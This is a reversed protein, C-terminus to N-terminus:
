QTPLVSGCFLDNTNKHALLIALNQCNQHWMPWSYMEFPNFHIFVLFKLIYNKFLIIYESYGACAM